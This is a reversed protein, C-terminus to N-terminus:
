LLYGLNFLLSTGEYCFYQLKPIGWIEGLKDFMYRNNLNSSDMTFERDKTRITVPLFISLTLRLNFSFCLNVSLTSDNNGRLSLYVYNGAITGLAVTLIIVGAGITVVTVIRRQKRFESKTQTPNNQILLLLIIRLLISKKTM